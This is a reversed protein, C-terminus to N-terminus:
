RNLAPYKTHSPDSRPPLGMTEEGSEACLDSCVQHHCFLMIPGDSDHRDDDLQMSSDTATFSGDTVSFRCARNLRSSGAGM